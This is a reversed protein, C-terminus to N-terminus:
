YLVQEAIPFILTFAEYGVGYTYMSLKEHSPIEKGNTHFEILEVLPRFWGSCSLTIKAYMNKDNQEELPIQLFTRFSSPIIASSVPICYLRPRVRITCFPEDCEPLFIKVCTDNDTWCFRALKKPVNWNRRGNVVSDISSVYIQSIRYYNKDRFQYYGPIFLLEDYPGVPSDTYRVLLMGGMGGCFPSRIPDPNENFSEQIPRSGHIFLYAKSGNLSWPAPADKINNADNM